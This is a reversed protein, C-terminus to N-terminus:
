DSVRASLYLPFLYTLLSCMSHICVHQYETVAKELSFAKLRYNLGNLVDNTIQQYSIASVAGNARPRWPMSWWPTPNPAPLWLLKTKMELM